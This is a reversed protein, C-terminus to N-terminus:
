MNCSSNPMFFSNARQTGRKSVNSWFRTRIFMDLARNDCNLRLLDSNQRRNIVTSSVQICWQVGSVFICDFCHVAFPSDAGFFNNQLSLRRTSSPRTLPIPADSPSTHLSVLLSHLFIFIFKFFFHRTNKNPRFSKLGGEYMCRIWFTQQM